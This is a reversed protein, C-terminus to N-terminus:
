KAEVPNTYSAGKLALFRNVLDAYESDSIDRFTQFALVNVDGDMAFTLPSRDAAAGIGTGHLMDEQILKLGIQQNPRMHTQFPTAVLFIKCQKIDSSPPGNVSDVQGLQILRNDYAHKPVSPLIQWLELFLGQNIGDSSAILCFTKNKIERTELWKALATYGELYKQHQPLWARYNSFAAFSYNSDTRPTEWWGGIVLVVLVLM